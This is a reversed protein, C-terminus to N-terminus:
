PAAESIIPRMFMRFPVEFDPRTSYDPSYAIEQDKYHLGDERNIHTTSSTLGRRRGDFVVLYGRTNVTPGWQASSDLYDALQKAGANARADRYSTGVQGTDSMSDGLWKIEVIARQDSYVWTVKVDVPHTEDVNQEPRVEADQLVHSLFQNLSKRMSAEPKAKFFIRNADKWADELILCSTNRAVRQKYDELASQLTSFTPRAFISAHTPSPNIIEYARGAVLFREARNHFEYVIALNSTTDPDVASLAYIQLSGNPQLAVCCPGDLQDAVSSIGAITHIPPALFSPAERLQKVVILQATRSSPDLRRYLQILTDLLGRLATAGESGFHSEVANVYLGEAIRRMRDIDLM